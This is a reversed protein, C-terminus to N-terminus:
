ARRREQVSRWIRGLEAFDEDRSRSPIRFDFTPAARMEMEATELRRRMEEEGDQGREVMRRRLEEPSVEIFVTALHDALLPNVAAARRVNEVGQVDINMILSRGQLLPQLVASRLTGYRHRRHVWAWELFEGREVRADFEEPSLFHYHVGHEEGPRPPRTTATVVRSFAPVERVMRECLTTKGSGAPGALVLLVAPGATTGPETTTM